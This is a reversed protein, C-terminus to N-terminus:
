ARDTGNQDTAAFKWSFQRPPLRIIFVIKIVFTM